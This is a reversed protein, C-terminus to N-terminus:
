IPEYVKPNAVHEPREGTLVQVVQRAVLEAMRSMAENTMSAVHPSFLTRPATLIPHNARPPEQEFVDMAAGRLQGRQLAEALAISDVIAGRAANILLATPKMRGIAEADIMFSTEANAPLHLTIVDSQRLLDRLTPLLTIEMGPPVEKVYPDFAVIGMGFGKQCIEAVRRGIVGLGVVGLTKQYFEMGMLSFREAYRGERVMNDAAVTQRALALMLQVTHEAVSHVMTLASPTFVVPIRRETAARLDINDIGVGHRGIVKLNPGGAILNATVKSLRVLLGDAGALEEATYARGAQWPTILECNDRLIKMGSEAIAEVLLVAPKDSM